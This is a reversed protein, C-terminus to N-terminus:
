PTVTLTVSDAYNGKPSDQYANAAITATVGLNLANGAAFGTGTGTNNALVISYPIENAGDKLKHTEANKTITYSAGKTCRFAVSATQVKEVANSPDLEGFNINTSGPGTFKCTDKVNASVNLTHQNNDAMASSMGLVAVSAVGAMLIKKLM